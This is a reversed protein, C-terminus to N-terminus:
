DGALWERVIEALNDGDRDSLGLYPRAPIVVDHAPITVSKEIARKHRKGAFLIRGAVSRLRVTSQRAPQEITDGFQQVAGYPLNTGAVAADADRQYRIYRRLDGRLTLIKDKNYKKQRAYRQKLPAWPTGDPATQTDFRDKTSRVLYEGVRPLLEQPRALREELEQLDADDISFQFQAGAM